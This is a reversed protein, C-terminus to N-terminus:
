SQGNLVQVTPRPAGFEEVFRDFQVRMLDMLSEVAAPPLIVEVVAQPTELPLGTDTRPSPLLSFTIRFDYPTYSVHTVNAYEPADALSYDPRAVSITTM